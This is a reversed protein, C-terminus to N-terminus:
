QSLLQVIRPAIFDEAVRVHKGDRCSYFLKLAPSMNYELFIYNQETAAVQSDKIMMDVVVFGDGLSAGIKSAITMYSKHMSGTVDYVSAGKSIMTGRGLEVRQGMQPVEQSDVVSGVLEQTLAPYTVMSGKIQQRAKNENVILQQVTQVGDGIVHPKERIVVARATGDTIIFRYEEGEFREQIICQDSYQLALKVAGRLDDGSYINTTVGKGLGSDLPKVIFKGAVILEDEIDHPIAEDSGLYWSHPTSFGLLQVHGYASSKDLSLMYASSSPFPYKYKHWSIVLNKGHASEIYTYMENHVGMARLEAKLGQSRLAQALIEQSNM